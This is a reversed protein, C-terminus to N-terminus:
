GANKIRVSGNHTTVNLNGEGSGITGTLRRRRVESTQLPVDCRIGGNHTRCTLKASTSASLTVEVRGNHTSVSGGIETCKALDAVVAGNHTVLTVDDGSYTANIGGNHTKAYLKGNSSEVNVRGNHTVLHADGSVGNVKVSGNHTKATLNLSGPARIDFHVQGRWTLRKLGKWRWGVRQSGAGAPEVFVDMAELANQADESTLGGAKKTVDVYAGTSGSQATFAIAGNHTRVDLDTLDADLDLRQTESETWVRPGSWGDIGVIICGNGALAPLVVLMGLMKLRSM